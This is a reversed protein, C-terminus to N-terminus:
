DEKLMSYVDISIKEGNKIECDKETREYNFNLKALGKKCNHNETEVFGEIRNLGLHNFGYACILPMAETMIGKGWFKPMLWFGIEAKNNILDNFGGAGCFENTEKMWIAWWLGTGTEELNKFWDMQAKTAELTKFNIGYYKIVEPHSLGKFVNELDTNTFQKLSLRNTQLTPFKNLRRDEM